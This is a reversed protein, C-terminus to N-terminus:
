RGVRVLAAAPIHGSGNCPHCTATLTQRRGDPTRQGTTIAVLPFGDCDPCIRTRAPTHQPM